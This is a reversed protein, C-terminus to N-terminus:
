CILQLIIKRSVNSCCYKQDALSIILCRSHNYVAFRYALSLYRLLILQLIVITLGKIPVNFGCLLWGNYLLVTIPVSATSPHATVNPVDLLPKPPTHGRGTGEASYWILLGGM